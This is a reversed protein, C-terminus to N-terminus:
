FALSSSTGTGELQDLYRCKRLPDIETLSQLMKRSMDDLAGIESTEERILSKILLICRLCWRHDWGKPHDERELENLEEVIALQANLVDLYCTPSVKRLDDVFFPNTLLWQLYLWISTDDSDMFMGTKVLELEHQLITQPRAFVHRVDAHDNTTDLEGFLDYIKPILKTRNHWASFNSINKNIKSTTFKYEEINIRLLARAEKQGSNSSESSELLTDEEM